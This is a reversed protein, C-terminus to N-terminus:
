GLSNLTVWPDNQLLDSGLPVDHYVSDRVFRWLKRAFSEGPFREPLARVHAVIADLDGFSEFGNHSLVFDVPQSSANRLRLLGQAMENLPVDVSKAVETAVFDFATSSSLSGDSVAVTIRASGLQKARMRLRLPAAADPQIEVVGPVDVTATMSLVDGDPDIVGLDHTTWESIASNSLAPVQSIRPADNVNSISISVSAPASTAPGSKVVYSFRDAGFEDLAPQYMFVGTAADITVTGRSPQVVIFFSAPSASPNGRSRLQGSYATEEMTSFSLPVATLPANGGGGCAACMSLLAVIRATRTWAARLILPGNVRGAPM